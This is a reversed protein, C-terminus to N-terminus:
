QFYKVGARFIKQDFDGPINKYVNDGIRESHAMKGLVRGDLSTIGEIGMMSGNPNYPMNMSVNGELDVYQTAIQGNEKLKNILELPAVFRGEGHSIPVTHIDGVKVESFWPSKVSSIRTQILSSMHRNINNYTLTAMDEEIDVIEGYPVLGLKILAQFGNCIGIMLGDRNKLLDNVANKIKENRFITAIFKGSGDPEDGASFGGPLMIIQTEKILTELTNISEQLAEKTINRFVFETVEAGENRFARASDYECNTGPFVPILVKPKAIKVKAGTLVTENYSIAEVKENKDETKIKFVKSLKEEFTKELECVALNLDFEKSIIAGNEI